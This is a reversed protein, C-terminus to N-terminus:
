VNLIGLQRILEIMEEDDVIGDAQVAKLAETANRLLTRKAKVAALAEADDAELARTLEVDTEALKENRVRRLEELKLQKVKAVDINVNNDETVDAWANRFERTGPLNDDTIFKVNLANEPISREVVHAEYQEPALPGLVKEIAEKPAAVVISIGNDEPRTYMIKM